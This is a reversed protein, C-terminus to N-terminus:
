KTERKKRLTVQHGVVLEHDLKYAKISSNIINEDDLAEKIWDKMEKRTKFLKHPDGSREDYIVIYQIPKEKRPRGPKKVKKLDEIDVWNVSLKPGLKVTNDDDVELVTGVHGIEYCSTKTEKGMYSVIKVRDGLKFKSM